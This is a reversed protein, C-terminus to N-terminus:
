SLIYKKVDPDDYNLDLNESRSAFTKLHEVMCQKYRMLNHLLNTQDMADKRYVQIKFELLIKTRRFDCIKEWIDEDINLKNEELYKLDDYMRLKKIYKVFVPKLLDFFLSDHKNSESDM